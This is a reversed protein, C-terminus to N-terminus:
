GWGAFAARNFPLCDMFVTLMQLRAPDSSQIGKESPRAPGVKKTRKFVGM